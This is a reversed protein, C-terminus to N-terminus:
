LIEELSNNKEHWNYCDEIEKKINEYDEKTIDYNEIDEIDDYKPDFVRLSDLYNSWCEIFNSHSVGFLGQENCAIMENIDIDYTNNIINDQVSLLTESEYVQYDESQLLDDLTKLKKM